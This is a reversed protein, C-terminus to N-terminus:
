LGARRPAMSLSPVYAVPEEELVQKVLFPSLGFRQLGSAYASDADAFVGALEAGKILVYQNKHVKLWEAKHSEYFQREQEFPM